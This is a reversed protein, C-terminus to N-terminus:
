FLSDQGVIQDAGAVPIPTSLPALDAVADAVAAHLRRALAPSELNEPQHVFVFPEVGAHLWTVVQPIWAALGDFTRDPDDSGIVRVIPTSGVSDVVVPLRPKARREEVAAETRPPEAYLARTDLVVRGVNAEGFVRDAARHPAGGDFFARHRLEVTWRHEASLGSVFRALTGLAEPGFSPPL